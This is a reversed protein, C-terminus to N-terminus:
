RARAGAAERTSATAGGVPLCVRFVTNGPRSTFDIEGAHWRVIRRAIDLGLGVSQGVTKTTFFPEFIRPKIEDPIGSGDDAVRVVLNSGERAATITVHGSTEVADIANEILKEWIQNIEGGFAFIRPADPAVDITVTASKMRAKGELVACTDALGRAVDVLEPISGRDMYTFSKVASVLQHIRSTAVEISLALNRGATGSALWQVAPALAAPPVTRALRELMDTSVATKSLSEAVAGEIGHADLWTIIADEHDSQDMPSRTTDFRGVLCAGFIRELEAFQEASLGAAGLARSGEEAAVLEDLLMKACRTAASAPNNLEHALGAALSGLSAMKEDHLDSATFQRARDTMVHVLLATIDHCERILDPLKSRELAVIETPEEVIADGPPKRLRSYPLVGTVDGGRWELVRRRGSGRDVHFAVRGSLLVFLGEVDRDHTSVREGPSLRRLEGHTALWMLEARPASGITRHSALRDVLNDINTPEHGTAAGASDRPGSPDLIAL